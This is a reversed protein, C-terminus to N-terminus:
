APLLIQRSTKPTERESKARSKPVTELTNQIGIMEDEFSGWGRANSLYEENIIQM